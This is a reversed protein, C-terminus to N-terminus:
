RRAVQVDFGRVARRFQVETQDIVGIPDGGGPLSWAVTLSTPTADALTPPRPASRRTACCSCRSGTSGPAGADRASDRRKSPSTPANYLVLM